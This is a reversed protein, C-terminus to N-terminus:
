STRTWTQEELKEIRALLECALVAGALNLGLDRRLRQVQALRAAADAAGDTAGYRVLREVLDGHLGSARALVDVERVRLVTTM